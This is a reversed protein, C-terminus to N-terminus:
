LCGWKEGFGFLAESLEVESCYIDALVRKDLRGHTLDFMVLQWRDATEMFKAAVEALTEEKLYEAAKYLFEGFSKRYFGEQQAYGSFFLLRELDTKALGEEKLVTIFRLLAPLGQTALSSATMKWATKAIAWRTALTLEYFKRPLELSQWQYEASDDEGKGLKKLLDEELVVPQDQLGDLFVFEKTEPRYSLALLKIEGMDPEYQDQLIYDDFRERIIKFYLKYNVSVLVPKNQRLHNLIGSRLDELRSACDYIIGMGLNACFDEVFHLNNGVVHFAPLKTAQVERDGPHRYNFGYGCGLGFAYSLPLDLGGWQLCTRLVGARPDSGTQHISIMDILKKM